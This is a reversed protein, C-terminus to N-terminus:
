QILCHSFKTLNIDQSSQVGCLRRCFVGPNLKLCVGVLRDKGNLLADCRGIVKLLRFHTTKQPFATISNAVFVLDRSITPFRYPVTSCDLGSRAPPLRGTSTRGTQSSGFLSPPSGCEASYRQHSGLQKPGPDEEQWASVQLVAALLVVQKTLVYMKLV